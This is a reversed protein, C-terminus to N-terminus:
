AAAAEALGGCDALGRALEGLVVAPDTATLVRGRLGAAGAVGDLYWGLHKRAVRLGLDRGYFGLMAEYHACVLGSLAAGAATPPAPRGALAAAVEALLWPRGRAGRGIMVADAGSRALARRATTADVIDGNAVVPIRVARKM